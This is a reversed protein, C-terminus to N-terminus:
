SAWPNNIDPAAAVPERSARWLHWPLLLVFALVGPHALAQSILRAVDRPHVRITSEMTSGAGSTVVLRNGECRVAGITVELDALPSSVQM